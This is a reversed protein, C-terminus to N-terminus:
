ELWLGLEKLREDVYSKDPREVLIVLQDRAEELDRIKANVEEVKQAAILSREERTIDDSLIRDLQEAIEKLSFHLRKALAIM